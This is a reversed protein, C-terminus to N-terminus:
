NIKWFKLYHLGLIKYRSLNILIYDRVERVVDDNSYIFLILYVISGCTLKSIISGFDSAIPFFQNLLLVTVLICVNSVIVSRLNMFYSLISFKLIKSCLILSYAWVAILSTTVGFSVGEIGFNLGLIMLPILLISYLMQVFLYHRTKGYAIIVTGQASSLCYFIAGLAMIQSPKAASTWKQGYLVNVVEPTTLLGLLIPLCLLATVKVMKFFTGRARHGDEKIECLMPLFVQNLVDAIKEKPIVALDYARKYLGVAQVGLFRGTLLYDINRAVQNLISSVTMCGGFQMIEKAARRDWSYKPLYRAVLCNGITGTLVSINAAFVLSWVGFSNIALPIAVLAYTVSSAIEIFSTQKFQMHRILISGSVIGFGSIFCNIGLCALVQGALPEDFFNSISSSLLILVAVVLVSAVSSVTQATRIFKEELQSAQVLKMSIGFNSVVTATAYFLTGMGIIGFEKPSLLRALTLGVLFDWVPRFSQSFALWPIAKRAKQAIDQM